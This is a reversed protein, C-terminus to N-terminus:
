ESSSAFPPVRKAVLVLELKRRALDAFGRATHNGSVGV